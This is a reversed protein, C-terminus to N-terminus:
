PRRDFETDVTLRIPPGFFPASLGFDSPHIQTQVHVGMATGHLGVGAGILEVDFSVQKTVGMLTLDGDVVGHSADIVHFAKSVFTAEPYRATKLYRDGSLKSAFDEGTAATTISKPDVTISLTDAAPDAPDWRLTGAVALFRFLSYSFGMHPYWAVLGTHSADIAYLGAPAAKYDKVPPTMASQALAMPAVMLGVALGAVLAGSRVGELNM